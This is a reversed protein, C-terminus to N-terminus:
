VNVCECVWAYVCGYRNKFTYVIWGTVVNTFTNSRLLFFFFTGCMKASLLNKPYMEGALDNGRMEMLHSKSDHGFAWFTLCLSLQISLLSSLSFFLFIYCFFFHFLFAQPQECNRWSMPWHLRVRFLRRLSLKWDATLDKETEQFLLFCPDLTSAPLFRNYILGADKITWYVATGSVEM